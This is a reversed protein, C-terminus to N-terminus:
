SIRAKLRTEMAIKEAVLNAMEDALVAQEKFAAVQHQKVYDVAWKLQAYSREMSGPVRYNIRHLTSGLSFAATLFYTENDPDDIRAPLQGTEADKFTDLFAQLFRASTAGAASVKDAERGERDKIEMITRYINGLELNLSRIQGLYHQANLGAALLPELLKARHKHMVCKRHPDSEFGALCRYMNSLEMTINIHETVWGDLQYFDLSHRFFPMAGNFLERAGPFDRVLADDGWRLANLDPLSGALEPLSLMEPFSNADPYAMEISAGDVYKTHSSVLRYLLLKGNALEVNAAVDDDLPQADPGQNKAILARAAKICYEGLAFANSNIYFGGLQLMNQVWDNLRYDGSKLQRQLTAACYLASRVSHNDHRHVQALYFLTQTYQAELQKVDEESRESRFPTKITAEYLSEAKSLWALSEDYSGRTCWLIGLSNYSEQIALCHEEPFKVLVDLGKLLADEGSKLLDTECLVLGQKCILQAIDTECTEKLHENKKIFEDLLESAAYLSKYPEEEPDNASQNRLDAVKILIESIQSQWDDPM